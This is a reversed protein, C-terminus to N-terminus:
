SGMEMVFIITREGSSAPLGISTTTAQMADAKATGIMSTEVVHPALASVFLLPVPFSNPSANPSLDSRSSGTFSPNTGIRIQTGTMQIISRMSPIAM